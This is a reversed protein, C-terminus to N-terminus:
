EDDDEAPLTPEAASPPDDPQALKSAIRIARAEEMLRDTVEELHRRMAVQDMGALLVPARGCLEECWRLMAASSRRVFTQVDAVRVLQGDLEALQREALKARALRWRELAPSDEPSNLVLEEPTGAPLPAAPKRKPHHTELWAVLNRTHYRDGKRPWIVERNKEVTRPSVGCAAAAKLMTACKRNRKPKTWDTIHRM